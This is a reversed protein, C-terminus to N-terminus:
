LLIVPIMDRGAAFTKGSHSMHTTNNELAKGGPLWSSSYLEQLFDRHRSPKGSLRCAVLRLKPHLPHVQGPRHPLQLLDRRTPLLRPHATLLKGVESFWPKTPWYPLILLVEARDQLVKQICRGMLSFPPFCYAYISSWDMTFADVHLAGPDPRWSVFKDLKTNLRSAFLDLEPMGFVGVIKHYVDEHLSWETRENFNRSAFDAAVNQIGALHTISPWTNHGICWFWIDKGLTNCAFSHSSGMNRIAAVASTNDSKILIHKGAVENGFATIALKIALLELANINNGWRAREAPSFRGGTTKKGLNAGWGLLSADTELVLVPNDRIIVKQASPLNEIWWEVEDKMRPTIGMLADYDGLNAAVAKTKEFELERYHLQALEVGPFCSVLKGIVHAVFRITGTKKGCFERCATLIKTRKEETVRVVMAQSNIEFGLVTVKQEPDTMSKVEHNIFGVSQLTDKTQAMASKCAEFTDDQCYVDDIYISLTLGKSRLTALIPKLLKTFQRPASKLGNPLAVFEYLKNGWQFRLFKQHEPAIPVSFYADRIDLTGMFCDRKVLQLISQFTDMKFKRYVVDDNFKKLNLIMRFSGDKKEKLFVRSLYEGVEHTTERIVGKLLLKAVEGDFISSDEKTLRVPPPPKEQHPFENDIFEIHLGTVMDLIDPDSTFKRWQPLFYQIRGGVRALTSDSM